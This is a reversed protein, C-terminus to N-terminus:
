RAGSSGPGRFSLEPRTSVYDVTRMLDFARRGALPRGFEVQNAVLRFNTDWDPNMHGLTEGRGRLDVALVAIGSDLLPRVLDSQAVAQKGRSDAIIVTRVPATRHLPLWLLGLIPEGDESM